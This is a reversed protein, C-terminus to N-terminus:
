VSPSMSRRPSDISVPRARIASASARPSPASRSTTTSRSSATSPRSRVSSVATSATRIRCAYGARRSGAPPRRQRGPRGTPRRPAATPRRPGAKGGPARRSGRRHREGGPDVPGGSRRNRTGGGAPALGGAVASRDKPAGRGGAGDRPVAFAGRGETRRPGGARSNTRRVGGPWEMRPEPPPLTPANAPRPARSPRMPAQVGGPRGFGGGRRCSVVPRPGAGARWGPLRQAQDPAHRGTPRPPRSGVHAPFPAPAGGPTAGVVSGACCTATAGGRWPAAPIRGPLM